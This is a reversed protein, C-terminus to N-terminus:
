ISQENQNVESDFTTMIDDLLKSLMENKEIEDIIGDINLTHIAYYDGIYKKFIDHWVKENMKRM